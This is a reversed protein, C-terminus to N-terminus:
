CATIRRAKNWSCGISANPRCPSRVPLLWPAATEAGLGLNVRQAGIQALAFLQDFIGGGMDLMHLLNQHLHVQLHGLVLTRPPVLVRCTWFPAASLTM